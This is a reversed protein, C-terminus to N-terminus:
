TIAKIKESTNQCKDSIDIRVLIVLTSFSNNSIRNPNNKLENLSVPFEGPCIRTTSNRRCCKIELHKGSCPRGGYKAM